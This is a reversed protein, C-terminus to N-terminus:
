ARPQGPGDGLALQAVVVGLDHAPNLRALAEDHRAVALRDRIQHRVPRGPFPLREAVHLLLEPLQRGDVDLLPVAVPFGVVQDETVVPGLVSTATGATMSSVDTTISTSVTSRPSYASEATTTLATVTASSAQPM